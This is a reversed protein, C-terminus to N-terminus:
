ASAADQDVLEPRALDAEDGGADLLDGVARTPSVMVSSRLGASRAAAPSGATALRHHEAAHERGVGGVVLLRRSLRPLSRRLSALKSYSGSLLEARQAEAEAAAKEAQQVELDDLLPEVRSNSRSRTM